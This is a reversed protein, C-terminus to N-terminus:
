KSIVVKRTTTQKGSTIQILYAGAYLTQTDFYAITQGKKIFTQSLKRGTLDLLTVEINELVFSGVQIAILDSAPNPFININLNDFQTETLATAGKYITTSETIATVKRNAYNGYFTAGVAYPYYSNHSADVTCFYAYTGNPYEPTVCFRGNHVDLYDQATNSVFEYDERFYGLSYIRATISRLQYANKIRIINGTGNANCLFANLFWGFSILFTTKFKPL